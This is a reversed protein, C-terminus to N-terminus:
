TFLFDLQMPTSIIGDKLVATSVDKFGIKHYFGTAYPSSNVTIKTIGRRRAERFYRRLLATAIGRHHYETQVFLLSVHSSSRIGLVGVIMDNIFAGYTIYEGMLFMKKLMPDRIFSKFNNIGERSYEPAEYILFTDWVLQIADEWERVEIPRIEYAYRDM